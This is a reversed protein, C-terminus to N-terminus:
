GATPHGPECAADQKVQKAVRAALRRAMIPLVVRAGQALLNVTAMRKSDRFSVKVGRRAAPVRGRRMLLGSGLVGVAVGAALRGAVSGLTAHAADKQADHETAWELLRAKAQEPTLPCAPVAVPIIAKSGYDAQRDM